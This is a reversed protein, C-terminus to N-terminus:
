LKSDLIKQALRKIAIINAQKSLLDKIQTIATRAYVTKGSGRSRKGNVYNVYHGLPVIGLQDLYKTLQYRSIMFTKELDQMSIYDEETLGAEIVDLKKEKVLSSTEAYEFVISNIMQRATTLDM